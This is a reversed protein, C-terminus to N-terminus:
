RVLPQGLRMMDYDDLEYGDGDYHREVPPLTHDTVNVGLSVVAEVAAADVTMGTQELRMLEGVMSQVLRRDHVLETLGHGHMVEVVAANCKEWLRDDVLVSWNRAIVERFAGVKGVFSNLAGHPHGCRRM